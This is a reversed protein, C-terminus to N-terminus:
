QSVKCYCYAEVVKALSNFGAHEIAKSYAIGLAPEQEIILIIIYYTLYSFLLLCPHANLYQSESVDYAAERDQEDKSQVQCLQYDCRRSPQWVDVPYRVIREGQCEHSQDTHIRM